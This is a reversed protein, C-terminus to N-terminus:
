PKRKWQRAALVRRALSPHNHFLFEVWAPPQPLAKNQEALAVMVREFVEPRGTRELAFRDAAQERRRTVMNVVTQGAVMLWALLLSLLPFTAVDAPGQLGNWTGVSRLVLYALALATILVGGMLTMLRLMDRHVKHGLEHAVVTVVEEPTMSELLTDSVVVQTGAGKPVLAATARSTKEGLQLVGVGLYPVGAQDFLAQLQANLEPDDLPKSKYQMRLLVPNLLYFVMLFVVVAVALGVLWRDPWRRFVFYVGLFFLSQLLLNALGQKLWDKLWGSLSQRSTGLRNELRFRFYGDLPLSVLMSSGMFLVLAAWTAWWRQDARLAERLGVAWGTPLWLLVLILPVVLGTLAEAVRMWLQYRAKALTEPALVAELDQIVAQLEPNTTM